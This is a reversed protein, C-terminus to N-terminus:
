ILLQKQFLSEVKEMAELTPHGPQDVFDYTLVSHATASIGHSNGRSSDITVAEFRDGYVQKLYAFRQDPVFADGSFRLGLLCSDHQELNEKVANIDAENQDIDSRLGPRIGFPMSPQSLVPAIVSPDAMMALAFGGSFCMGIAGVGPGGCVEHAHRALARLFGAIPAERRFALCNFERAVCLRAMGRAINMNSYKGGPKGVLSPLYTTLGLRNLRRAFDFVRNYICPIEHIVIVAPGAGSRYVPRTYGDASFYGPEFDEYGSVRPADQDSGATWQEM